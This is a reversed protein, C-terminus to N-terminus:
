INGNLLVCLKINDYLSQLVKLPTGKIGLMFIKNSMKAREVSDFERKFDVFCCYLRKNSSLYKDIVTQLAFIADVTGLSSRFGFQADSIIDNHEVWAMLRKNLISTFLKTLCSVLSIGRYNAPDTTSGKKHLYVILSTCLINPFYGTSFITNFMTHLFPLLIDNNFVIFYEKIICDLRHSQCTKLTKVSNEIEKLSIEEELEEFIVNGVNNDPRDNPRTNVDTALAKFHEYLDELSVNVKNAKRKAFKSFFLKPNSKRISELM